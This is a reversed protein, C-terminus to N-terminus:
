AQPSSTLWRRGCRSGREDQAQACGTTWQGRLVNRFVPGCLGFGCATSGEGGKRAASFPLLFTHGQADARSRGHQAYSLM